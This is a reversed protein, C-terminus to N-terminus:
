EGVFVGVSGGVGGGDWVGPTARGEGGPGEGADQPGDRIGVREAGQKKGKAPRGGKGTRKPSQEVGYTNLIASAYAPHEDSTMLNMLRGETREHFDEVLLQTLGETRRGVVLSVVLRHEPDFAVHDWCDGLLDDDPNTRDCHKEKKGVFSWKEDFQVEDTQPPFLWSNM